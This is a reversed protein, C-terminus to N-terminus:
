CSCIVCLGCAFCLKIGEVVLCITPRATPGPWHDNEALKRGFGISWVAEFILIYFVEHKVSWSWVACLYAWPWQSNVPLWPERPLKCLWHDHDVSHGWVGYFEALNSINAEFNVFMILQPQDSQWKKTSKLPKLGNWSCFDGCCQNSARRWQEFPALHCIWSPPVRTKVM